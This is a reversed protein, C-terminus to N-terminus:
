GKEGINQETLTVWNLLCEAKVNPSFRLEQAPSIRSLHCRELRYMGKVTDRLTDLFGLLQGEHLLGFDLTMTSLNLTYISDPIPTEPRIQKQPDLKYRVSFVGQQQRIHEVTEIWDLRREPGIVHNRVLTQYHQYYEHLDEQEVRVRQLKELSGVLESEAMVMSQDAQGLLHNSGYIVAVALLLALVLMILPGRLYRLDRASFTM